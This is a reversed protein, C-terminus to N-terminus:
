VLYSYVGLGLYVFNEYFFIKGANKQFKYLCDCFRYRLIM